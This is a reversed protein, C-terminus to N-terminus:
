DPSIIQHVGRVIETAEARSIPRDPTSRRTASRLGASSPPFPLGAWCATDQAIELLEKLRTPRPSRLQLRDTNTGSRPNLSRSLPLSPPVTNAPRCCRNPEDTLTPAYEQEATSLWGRLSDLFGGRRRIIDPGSFAAAGAIDIPLTIGAPIVILIRSFEMQKLAAAATPSHLRVADVVVLRARSILADVKAIVADGSWWTM